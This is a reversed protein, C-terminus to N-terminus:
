VNIHVSTGMNSTGHYCYAAGLKYALKQVKNRGKKTDTVGKIYIDAAGGLRHVSKPISGRLSDNYRQCRIGSNITIPKGYEERITELILLLHRNINKGNYGNCYRGNCHCRFESKKFHTSVYGAKLSKLMAEDKDAAAETKKGWKGDVKLYGKAKQYAKIGTKTKKGAKGDIAGDYLGFTKLFLQKEKVTRM